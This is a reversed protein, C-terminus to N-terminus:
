PLSRAAWVLYSMPFHPRVRVTLALVPLSFYFFWEYPLTWTVGALIRSTDKLGNLNPGGFITFTMWSLAKNLTKLLPANLVGHTVVFVVTIFLVMVFLYLPVLRLFRSVFLKDWDINKKRGEILKTFFLFASIMFFLAVSSSGFQSFLNSPPLKWEGTRPLFHWICSHHLYVFFALYGRLGDISVYRGQGPPAGFIKVLLFSTGVAVLLSVLAPLPNIPDM